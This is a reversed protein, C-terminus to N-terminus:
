KTASKCQKAPKETFAAMIRKIAELENLICSQSKLIDSLVEYLDDAAEQEDDEDEVDQVTIVGSNVLDDVLYPHFKCDLHHHRETGDDSERSLDLVIKDGFQLEKGSEKFFYKKM